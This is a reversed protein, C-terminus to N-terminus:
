EEWWWGMMRNARYVAGSVTVPLTDFLINALMENRLTKITILLSDEDCRHMWYTKLKKEAAKWEEGFVEIM